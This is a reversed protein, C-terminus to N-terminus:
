EEPVKSVLDYGFGGVLGGLIPGVLYVILQGLETAAGKTNLIQDILTPGISRAPNLSAGTIPGVVIIIAFVVVGVMIGGFGANARGDFVGFITFVLIATGVAEALIAIWMGTTNANFGTEGTGLSAPDNGTLIAVVLVAGVIAGVCQAVIYLVATKPDMGWRRTALVAITVAPNFHAGSVHGLAYVAAWIAFAFAFAIAILAAPQPYAGATLKGMLPISGAGLFVIFGAGIAEAGMKQAM